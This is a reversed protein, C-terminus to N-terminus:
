YGSCWNWGTWYSNMSDTTANIPWSYATLFNVCVNGTTEM